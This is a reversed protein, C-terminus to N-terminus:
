WIALLAVMIAASNPGYLAVPQQNEFGAAYLAAAIRETRAKVEAFTLREGAAVDVLATRAPDLDHGRDFYDISRVEAGAISKLAPRGSQRQRRPGPSCCPARWRLARRSAQWGAM